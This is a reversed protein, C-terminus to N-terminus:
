ATERLAAEEMRVSRPFLINNELHIHEHLDRELDALRFYLGTFSPCADPPTTFDNSLQRMKRLIEGAVDHEAMMMKVPHQVTGFPPVPPLLGMAVNRAMRDIYPFLVNEEKMMHPMLDASLEDFATKLELLEPHNDGHVRAVKDMLPALNNLEDRTFVHHKDVIHDILEPLTANGVWDGTGTGAVILANLRTLVAEANAGAVECAEALPKRGGCCYDIKFEEFVRTTQPMELAIERVTKTAINQM